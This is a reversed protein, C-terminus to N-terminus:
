YCTIEDIFRSVAEDRNKLHDCKDRDYVTGNNEDFFRQKGYWANSIAQFMDWEGDDHAQKIMDAIDIM